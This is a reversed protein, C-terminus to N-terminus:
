NKDNLLFAFIILNSKCQHNSEPTGTLVFVSMFIMALAHLPLLAMILNKLNQAFYVDACRSLILTFITSAILSLTIMFGIFEQAIKLKSLTVTLLTSGWVHPISGFSAVLLILVATKSRFHISFPLLKSDLILNKM